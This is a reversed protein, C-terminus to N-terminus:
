RYGLRRLRAETDATMNTSISVGFNDLAQWDSEVETAVPSNLTDDGWVAHKEVDGEVLRYGARAVGDFQDPDVGYEDITLPRGRADYALREKVDVTALSDRESLLSPDLDGDSAQRLGDYLGTLSTPTDVRRRPRGPIRVLLPVHLLCDSIGVTHGALRVSERVESYEGFAEGHDSTVVLLTDKLKGRDRLM